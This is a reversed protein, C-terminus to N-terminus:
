SGEAEEGPVPAEREDEGLGRARPSYGHRGDGDPLLGIRIQFRPDIAQPPKV